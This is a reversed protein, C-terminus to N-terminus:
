AAVEQERRMTHRVLKGSGTQPLEEVIRFDKPVKFSSLESYCLTRWTQPDYPM